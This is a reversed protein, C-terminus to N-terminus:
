MYQLQKKQIQKWSQFACIASLPRTHNRDWGLLALRLDCDLDLDELLPPSQTVSSPGAPDSSSQQQLQPQNFPLLLEHGFIRLFLWQMILVWLQHHRTHNLSFTDTILFVEDTLKEKTVQLLCCLYSCLTTVWDAWSWQSKILIVRLCM